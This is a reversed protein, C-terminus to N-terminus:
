PRQERSWSLWSRSETPGLRGRRQGEVGRGAFRGSLKTEKNSGPMQGGWRGNGKNHMKLTLNNTDLQSTKNSFDFGM